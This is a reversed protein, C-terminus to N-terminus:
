RLRGRDVAPPLCIVKRVKSVGAGPLLPLVAAGDFPEDTIGNVTVDAPVYL